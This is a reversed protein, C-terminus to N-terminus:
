QSINMQNIERRGTGACSKIAEADVEKLSEKILRINNIEEDHIITKLLLQKYKGKLLSFYSEIGNFQPSYAVNFIPLIDLEEYLKMMAATKHVQLNDM